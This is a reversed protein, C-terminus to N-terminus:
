RNKEEEVFSKCRERFDIESEGERSQLVELVEVDGGDQVEGDSHRVHILGHSDRIVTGTM